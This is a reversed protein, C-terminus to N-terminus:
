PVRPVTVLAIESRPKYGGTEQLERAEPAAKMISHKHLSLQADLTSLVPMM